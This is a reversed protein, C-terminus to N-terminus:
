TTGRIAEIAKLAVERNTSVSDTTSMRELAPLAELRKMLQLAKACAERVFYDEDSLGQILSQVERDGQKGIQGLALASRARLLGDPARLAEFLADNARPDHLTGLLTAAESRTQMPEAEDKLIGILVSVAEEVDLAEVEAYWRELDHTPQLLRRVKESISEAM